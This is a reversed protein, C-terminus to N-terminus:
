CDEVIVDEVSSNFVSGIIELEETGSPVTISLTRSQNKTETEEFVSEDGDALIFFIMLVMMFLTLFHVIMGCLSGTLDTVDVFFILSMSENDSEIGTVTM